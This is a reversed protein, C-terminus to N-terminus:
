GQARGPRASVRRRAEGRSAGGGPFGAARLLAAAKARTEREEAAPDSPLTVAGGAHVHVPGGEGTAYAIRIAVALDLAGDWGVWGFAGCYPGRRVPELAEIVEQARVKPAGTVSGPPFTARVLDDWGRGPALSAAVVGVTHHVAPWTQLRRAAPVVVSGPVAVRGLDSRALDVIMALEAAEKESALLERALRRDVAHDADRPRTGKIPWTEVEGGPALRLFREPSASVLRRGGGLDLDAMYPAPALAALARAFPDLDVGQLTWRRSLNM